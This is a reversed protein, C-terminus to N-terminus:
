KVKIIPGEPSNERLFTQSLETIQYRQFRSRPNDLITRALLGQELLIDLYNRQFTERHKISIIEQLDTSKKPEICATLVDLKWREVQGTVQGVNASRIADPHVPFRM